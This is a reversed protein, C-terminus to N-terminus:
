RHDACYIKKNWDDRDSTMIDDIGKETMENKVCDMVKEAPRQEEM